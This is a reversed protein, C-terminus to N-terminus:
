PTMKPLGIASQAQETLSKPAEITANVAQQGLQGCKGAIEILKAQCTNQSMAGMILYAAVGIVLIIMVMPMLNAMNFVGKEMAELETAKNRDEFTKPNVKLINNEKIDNLNILEAHGHVSIGIPIGNSLWGMGSKNTKFEGVGKVTWWGTKTKPIYLNFINSDDEHFLMRKRMIKAYLIKNTINGTLYTVLVFYALLIMMVTFCTLFLSAVQMGTFSMWWSSFGFNIENFKMFIFSFV